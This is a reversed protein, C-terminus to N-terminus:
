SAIVPLESTDVAQNVRNGVFHLRAIRCTRLFRSGPTVRWQLRPPAKLVAFEIRLPGRRGGRIQLRVCYNKTRQLACDSEIEMQPGFHIESDGFDEESTSMSAM